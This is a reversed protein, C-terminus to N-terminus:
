QPYPRLNQMVQVLLDPNNIFPSVDPGGPTAPGGSHADAVVVADGLDVILWLANLPRDSSFQSLLQAQKGQVRVTEETGARPKTFQSEVRSWADRGYATLFLSVTAGQHPTGELWAVYDVDIEGSEVDSGTGSGYPGDFTLDGATFGRGLWYAPLGKAEATAVNRQFNSDIDLSEQTAEPGLTRQNSQDTNTGCASCAAAITAAILLSIVFANSSSKM